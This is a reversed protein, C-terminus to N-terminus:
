AIELTKVEYILLFHLSRMENNNNKERYESYSAVQM